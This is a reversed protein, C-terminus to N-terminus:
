LSHKRGVGPSEAVKWLLLFDYSQSIFKWNNDLNEFLVGVKFIYCSLRTAKDSPFRQIQM